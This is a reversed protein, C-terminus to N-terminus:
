RAVSEPEFALAQVTEPFGNQVGALLAEAVSKSRFRVQAVEDLPLWLPEYINKGMAGILAEESSPSLAPDGSLYECLFVHQVGYLDGADEVFVQRVAGVEMGTEERLERRLATEADEGINIGGGILTYYIDGFKNRKMALMKDGSIVIARVSQKRTM